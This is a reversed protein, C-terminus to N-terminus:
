DQMMLGICAPLCKKETIFPCGPLYCCLCRGWGICWGPKRHKQATLPQSNNSRQKFSGTGTPSLVDPQNFRLINPESLWPQLTALDIGIHAIDPLNLYLEKHALAQLGEALRTALRILQEQSLRATRQSIVEQDKLIVKAEDDPSNQLIILHGLNTTAQRNILVIQRHAEEAVPDRYVFAGPSFPHPNFHEVAEALMDIVGAGDRKFYLGIVFSDADQGSGPSPAPSSEKGALITMKSTGTAADPTVSKTQYWYGASSGSVSIQLTVEPTPTNQRIDRDKLHSFATIGVAIVPQPLAEPAATFQYSRSFGNAFRVTVHDSDESSIDRQKSEMPEPFAASAPPTLLPSINISAPEISLSSVFPTDDGTGKAEKVIFIGSSRARHGNGYNTPLSITREHSNTEKSTIAGYKELENKRIQGPSLNYLHEM